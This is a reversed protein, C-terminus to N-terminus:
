ELLRSRFKPKFQAADRLAATLKHEARPHRLDGILHWGQAYVEKRLKLSLTDKFSLSKVQRGTLEVTMHPNDKTARFM